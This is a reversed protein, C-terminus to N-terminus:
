VTAEQELKKKTTKQVQVLPLMEETKEIPKNVKEAIAESVPVGQEDLISDDQGETENYFRVVGIICKEAMELKKKERYAKSFFRTKLNDWIQRNEEQPNIYEIGKAKRKEVEAEGAGYYEKNIVYETIDDLYKQALFRYVDQQEHSKVRRPISDWKYRIAEELPNFIRIIDKDHWELQQHFLPDGHKAPTPTTPTFQYLRNAM